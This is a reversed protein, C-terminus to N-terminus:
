TEGGAQFDLDKADYIIIEEAKAIEIWNGGVDGLRLSGNTAYVFQSNNIWHIEGPVRFLEGDLSGVYFLEEPVDPPCSYIPPQKRSYFNETCGTSFSFYGGDPSFSHFHSIGGALLIPSTGDVLSITADYSYKDNNEEGPITYGVYELTPSLVGHKYQEIIGVTEPIGASADVSFITAPGAEDQRSDESLLVTPVIM